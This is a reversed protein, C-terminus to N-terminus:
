IEIDPRDFSITVVRPPVPQRRLLLFNEFKSAELERSFKVLSIRRIRNFIIKICVFQVASLFLQYLKATTKFFVMNDTVQLALCCAASTTLKSGEKWRLM